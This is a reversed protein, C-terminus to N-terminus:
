PLLTYDILLMQEHHELSVTEALGSLRLAAHRLADPLWSRPMKIRRILFDGNGVAIGAPGNTVPRSSSATTALCWEGTGHGPGRDWLARGGLAGGVLLRPVFHSPPLVGAISAAAVALTAASEPVWGDREVIRGVRSLYAGSIPLGSDVLSFAFRLEDSARDFSTTFTGEAEVRGSAVDVRQYTGSDRYVDARDYAARSAEFVVRADM